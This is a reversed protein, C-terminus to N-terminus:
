CCQTKKQLRLIFFPITKFLGEPGTLEICVDSLLPRQSVYLRAYESRRYLKRRVEVFNSRELVCLLCRKLLKGQFCGQYATSLIIKGRHQRDM